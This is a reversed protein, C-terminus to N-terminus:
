DLTCSGGTMVNIANLADCAEEADSKSANEFTSVTEVGASVCTCTYDRKCSAMGVIFLAALAPIFFKKM